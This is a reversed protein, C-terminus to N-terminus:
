VSWGDALDLVSGAAGARMIGEGEIERDPSPTWPLFGVVALAQQVIEPALTAPDGAPPEVVQCVATSIRGEIRRIRDTAM